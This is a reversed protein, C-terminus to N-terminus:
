DFNQRAELSDESITFPRQSMTDMNHHTINPRHIVKFEYEQPIFAWHVLKCTLKDNTMLWKILQHDTYLTFKTGYIYSPGYLLLVSGRMHLTTARLRTTTEPHMPSSMNRVKRMLNAVLIVLVLLVGTLTYFSFRESILDEWFPSNQVNKRSHTLFKRLKKMGHGFLMRKYCHMSLILLLVSTKSMFRTTIVYDSSAEWLTFM